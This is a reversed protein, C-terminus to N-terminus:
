SGVFLQLQWCEELRGNLFVDQLQFPDALHYIKVRKRSTLALFIEICAGQALKDPRGKDVVFASAVFDVIVFTEPVNVNKRGLSINFINGRCNVM